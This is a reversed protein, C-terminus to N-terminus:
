GTSRKRVAAVIQERISELLALDGSDVSLSGPHERDCYVLGIVHSGVRIPLLLFAPQGLAPVFWSPLRPAIVPDRTDSILIDKGRTCLLSFLDGSDGMPVRFVRLVTDMHAGAGVRAVLAGSTDRLCIVARQLSMAQQLGDLVGDLIHRVTAGARNMEDVTRLAQELGRRRAASTSTSMSTSTSAAKSAAVAPAAPRDVASPASAPPSGPSTKVSSRATSTPAAADSALPSAGRDAPSAARRAPPPAQKVGLSDGLSRWSTLAHETIEAIRKADLGLSPGMRANFGRLLEFRIDAGEGHLRLAGQRHMQNSLDTAATCLVRAYEDGTARRDTATPYQRKLSQSLSEPWGWQRAIECGVEELSLGLVERSVRQRLANAQPGESSRGPEAEAQAIAQEIRAAEEPLHIAVLLQGIEMFVAALYVDEQRKVDLCMDRALLGALLARSMAERVVQRDVGQPMGEFLMLSSAVTGVTRFGLLAVARPISTISGAGAVGYYAANILRLVKATLAVDKLVHETLAQVHADESRSLRQISNISDLLAPFDPQSQIRDSLRRMTQSRRADLVEAAIDHSQGQAGPASESRGATQQVKV